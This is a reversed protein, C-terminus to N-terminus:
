YDFEPKYIEPDQPYHALRVFNSGMEKILEMDARHQENSMAAGVGAHEEHRHTGRLLLRKGNLYFPGNKEFEFWRFGVREDVKDKIIDNEVLSVSVTYLNPTKTDWLEPNLIENFLITTKAESVSSNQTAVVEGKPNKLVAEITLNTADNLNEITTEINLIAKENSVIPTSIKINDIHTNPKTLLWVDRTIGGFIFFDSKQSPIVEPDYGNDVRVLIKNEGKQIFNTIDIEFRIYGGIHGGAEKGNVFVTTTINAGEFYLSYKQNAVM